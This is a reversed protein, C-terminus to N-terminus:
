NELHHIQERMEYLINELKEKIDFISDTHDDTLVDEELEDEMSKLYYISKELFNYMKELNNLKYNTM